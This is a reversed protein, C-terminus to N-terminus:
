KHWLRAGFDNEVLLGMDFLKDEAAKIMWGECEEWSGAMLEPHEVEVYGRYDESCGDSKRTSPYSGPWGNSTAFVYVKTTDRPAETGGLATRQFMKIEALKIDTTM